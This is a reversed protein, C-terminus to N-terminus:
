KYFARDHEIKVRRNSRGPIGAKIDRGALDTRIADADYGKDALLADPLRDPQDILLDYAKCDEAEGVTLRFATPRGLADALNM